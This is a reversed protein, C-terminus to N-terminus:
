ATLLKWAFEGIAAEVKEALLGLCKGACKGPLGTGTDVVAVKFEGRQGRLTHHLIRLEKRISTASMSVFCIDQAVM